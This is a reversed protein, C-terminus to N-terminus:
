DEWMAQAQMGQRQNGKATCLELAEAGLDAILDLPHDQFMPSVGRFRFRSPARGKWDCALQMLLTAQLPGHVVLGPYKEVERAYPLDYHIRHANFTCASYRFLLAASIDLRRRAVAQEPVPIPRPETFREPMPLYVIDQREKLALGTEGAIEHRVTVFVMRGTAGDKEAIGEIVSHRTLTEGIHLPKLFELEGGAWMRRPLAVPPLFGGKHPHGDRGLASTEAMTPFAAWHWLPPLPAGHPRQQTEHELTASLMAAMQMDLRAQGTEERGIWDTVPFERM